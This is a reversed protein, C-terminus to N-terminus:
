KRKKTIYTTEIEVKTEFIEDCHECTVNDKDGDRDLDYCGSIDDQEGFCYPCIVSAYERIDGNEKLKKEYHEKSRM